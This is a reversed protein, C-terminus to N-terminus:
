RKPQSDKLNQDLKEKGLGKPLRAPSYIIAVM